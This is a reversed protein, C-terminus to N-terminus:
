VKEDDGVAGRDDDDDDDDDDNDDDDDDDDEDEEEEKEEEEEEEEEEEGEDEDEKVEDGSVAGSSNDTLRKKEMLIKKCLANMGQGGTAKTM